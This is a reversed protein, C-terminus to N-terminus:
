PNVDFYCIVPFHDSYGYNYMDGSFTRKPNNKWHGFKEFMFSKKFIVHSNFKLNSRSNKLVSNESILIQDFLHWADNYSTTGEGKKFNKYFPNYFSSKKAQKLDFFSKIGGNMSEDGPNDNFDGMIIITSEPNVTQVSDALHQNLHAATLRFQKSEEGGRRSPWHNVLIFVLQKGIKGKVLLIDRTLRPISDKEFIPLARSQSNLLTFYKSNYLLGVDVGRPDPSDFHVIKYYKNKLLDTKCLDELVQRNEVECVGLLALEGSKDEMNMAHIVKALRQLKDQYLSETWRKAGLPTFEEDLTISDDKTDFLNELNYFGIGLKQSQVPLIGTKTFLVLFLIKVLIKNRQPMM